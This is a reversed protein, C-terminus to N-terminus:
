KLQGVVSQSLRSVGDLGSTPDVVSGPSPAEPRRGGGDEIQLPWARGPAMGQRDLFRPGPSLAPIVNAAWERVHFPNVPPGLHGVGLKARDPTSLLMHGGSASLLGRIRNLVYAPDELHEVVDSFIVLGPKVEGLRKWLEDSTLDGVLWEGQPYLRRAFEIGSPQDVGM